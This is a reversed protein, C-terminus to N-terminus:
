DLKGLLSLLDDPVAEEVTKNYVSRLASGMDRNKSQAAAGKKPKESAQKDSTLAQVGM